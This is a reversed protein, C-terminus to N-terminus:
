KLRRQTPILNSAASMTEHPASLVSRWVLGGDNGLSAKLSQAGRHTVRMYTLLCCIM